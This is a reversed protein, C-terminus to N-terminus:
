LRVEWETGSRKDSLVHRGLGYLRLDHPCYEQLLEGAWWSEMSEKSDWEWRCSLWAGGHFGDHCGTTGSGCVAILAPRLVHGNLWITGVSGKPPCHHANTARRGCVACLATDELRHTNVGKGSYFAHIHPMGYESDRPLSPTSKTKFIM